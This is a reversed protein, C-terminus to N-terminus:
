FEEIYIGGNRSEELEKEHIEKERARTEPTSLSKAVPGPGEEQIQLIVDALPGTITTPPKLKEQTM